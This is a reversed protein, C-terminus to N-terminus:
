LSPIKDPELVHILMWTAFATWGIAFAYRGVPHDTRCLRRTCASLTGPTRRRIHLAEYTIGAALLGSWVWEPRDM